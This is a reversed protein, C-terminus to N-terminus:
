IFNLVKKIIEIELIFSSQLFLKIIKLALQSHHVLLMRRSSRRLDMMIFFFIKILLLIIILMVILTKLFGIIELIVRRVLVFLFWGRGSYSLRFYHIYCFQLLLTQCLDIVKIALLM